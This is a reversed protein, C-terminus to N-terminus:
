FHTKFHPFLSPFTSISPFQPSNLLLSFDCLVPRKGRRRVARARGGTEVSSNELLFLTSNWVNERYFFEAMKAYNGSRRRLGPLCEHVYPDGRLQGERGGVDRFQRGVPLRDHRRRTAQLYVLSRNSCTWSGCAVASQQQVCSDAGEVRPDREGDAAWRWAEGPSELSTYGIWIMHMEDHEYEEGRGRPADHRNDDTQQALEAIFTMTGVDPVSAVTATRGDYAHSQCAAVCDSWSTSPTGYREGFLKYCREQAGAGTSSWGAADAEDSGIVGCRGDIVAPLLAALLAHLATRGAM